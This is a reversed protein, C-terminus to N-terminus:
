EYKLATVTNLRSGRWAPYLGAIISIAIPFFIAFMLLDVTIIPTFGSSSAGRAQPGMRMTAMGGGLVFSLLSGTVAGLLGGLLGNISAESLFMLLIDRPRYGIAKMIGIERTREMVSVFMTNTIGVGAVFLSIAAVGGLFLTLQGTISQVTELMSKASMLRADSGYYEQISTQAITVEENSNAIV